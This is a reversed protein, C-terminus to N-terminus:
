VRRPKTGINGRTAKSYPCIRHAEDVLAQAAERKLGPLSVNLRARLIYGGDELNLDVEADIAVDAPLTLSM